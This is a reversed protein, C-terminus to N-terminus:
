GKAPDAASAAGAPVAHVPAGERVKQLGEVILRDGPKLGETVLWKDGVVPGTKLNRLEAKGQANVVYAIPLGRVDRTISVQPALIANSQVAETVVARVFMGPLLIAQPNPMIARLDVTGTAPDVTVDTFQLMGPMPYDSGDELKLRVQLGGKRARGADLAQRLALLQTASQTIDVYIQDLNQITTLAATQSATVLAGPTVNSRGVRGSIPASVKTYDLNIRATQVAAQAEQVNADAQGAAARADDADQKSVANIKVLDDYREAKLKATRDAAQANALQAQAQAYAAQYPAPDIQYLLQGRKVAAGETFPRELIVGNVQPRVDATEIASTRGPLETQIEVTQAKLVVVGVDPTPLAPAHPRGCAALVFSLGIV